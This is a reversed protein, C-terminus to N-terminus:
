RDREPIDKVKGSSLGKLTDLKKKVSEKVRTERLKDATDLARQSFGHFGKGIKDLLKGFKALIGRDSRVSEEEKASKGVLIRGVNRLHGRASQLESRLSDIQKVDQEIDKSLKGFLGALKDFTEPIKMARVAAFLAEKGKEKFARIAKAANQVLNDKVKNVIAIVQKIKGETRQALNQCKARLTSNHILNIEERMGQMEKLMNSLTKEMDGIYDVLSIIEGKEKQLNNKDLTDLLEVIEPHKKLEDM